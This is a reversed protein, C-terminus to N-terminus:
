FSFGAPYSHLGDFDAKGLPVGAHRLTAYAMTLHFWLNPLAFQHLYDPATQTLDAFGARHSIIRANAGDFDAPKLLGIQGTAHGIRSKLGFIGSDFQRTDPERLTLSANRGLNTQAEGAATIEVLWYEADAHLADRRVIEDPLYFRFHGTGAEVSVAETEARYFHYSGDVSKLGLSLVVKVRDLFASRGHPPHIEVEVDAEFWRATTDPVNALAFRVNRGETKPRVAGTQSWGTVVAALGLM